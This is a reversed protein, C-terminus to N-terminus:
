EVVVSGRMSPHISCYYEYTGPEEFTHSFGEGASLRKSEFGGATASKVIHPMRDQQEWRVTEGAEIRLTSPAFRMGSITVDAANDTQQSETAERSTQGYRQATSGSAPQGYSGRAPYGMPGAPPMAPRMPAGYGPGYMPPAGYPGYGPYGGAQASAAAGGSLVIAASLVIKRTARSLM